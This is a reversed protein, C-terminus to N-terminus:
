SAVRLIDNYLVFLFFGGILVFGAFTAYKHVTESVRKGSVWEVLAYVIHGGDLIPLPLLNILFLSVSLLAILRLYYEAGRQAVKGALHGITIPGALNSADLDGVIMKKISVVTLRVIMWTEVAALGVSAILGGGVQSTEVLPRLGAQGITSEDELTILIPTLRIEKATGDRMVTLRMTQEPSARVADVFGGWAYIPSGNSAIVRDGRQIGATEAPSNELVEDIIPPLGITLGVSGLLDFDKEDRLWNTIPIQHAHQGLENETEIRIYGTEGVRKFLLETVDTQSELAIGDIAVLKEGGRLGAAYAPTNPEIQGLYPIEVQKGDLMVLMYVVFALLLNALPGASAVAIQKWPAIRDYAFPKLEEDVDQIARTDLMSIYGGLPLAAFVFETGHKPSVWKLLAPGLGISFRLVIVGAARAVVFHGLEHVSILILFAGVLAVIYILYDM